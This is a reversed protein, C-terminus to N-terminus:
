AIASVSSIIPIFKICKSFLCFVPIAPSLYTLSPTPVGLSSKSEHKSIATQVAIFDLVSILRGSIRQFWCIMRLFSFAILPSAIEKPPRKKFVKKWRCASGSSTNMQNVNSIFMLTELTTPPRNQAFNKSEHHNYRANKLGFESGQNPM